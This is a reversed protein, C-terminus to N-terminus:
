RRDDGKDDPIFYGLVASIIGMLIPAVFAGLGPKVHFHPVIYPTALFLLGNLVLGFLGLTLCNLPATLFRLVPRVLSNVLGIAITAMVLAGITDYSIEHPFIQVVIALAVGSIIWRLIWTLVFGELEGVIGGVGPTVIFLDLSGGTAKSAARYLM